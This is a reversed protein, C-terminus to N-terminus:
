CTPHRTLRALTAAMVERTQGTVTFVLAERYIRQAAHHIHNAAGSSVTVAAHACRVALDIAWARLKLKEEYPQSDAAFIASRCAQWEQHLQHYAAQIFDLPNQTVTTQILDLGARACGIAFFSHHLVNLTDAQQIAAIPKVLVVQEPPLFWHNFQATVTNTATLAALPMPPSFDIRGGETQITPTFPVMGYVVQQDPLLAAVILAQFYGCGTVWPVTGELQYGGQVPTAKLPPHRRRLHSFGVGVLVQGNGMQPLYTQQLCANDSHCLLSAASQHQAQLFALAGSYRAMLEQVSRFMEESVALGQWREPVRLALWGRDGLGKLATGLIQPDHDLTIAHPSVEQQLYAEIQELLPLM